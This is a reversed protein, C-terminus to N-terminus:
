QTFNNPPLLNPFRIKQSGRTHLCVTALIDANVFSNNLLNPIASIKVKNVCAAWLGVWM